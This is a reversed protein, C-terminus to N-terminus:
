ANHTRRKWDKIYEIVDMSRRVFPKECFTHQSEGPKDFEYVVPHDFANAIELISYPYGAGLHIEKPRKTSFILRLIGEVVDEVYTFDRTKLGTGYIRLPENNLVKNKFARIVTSYEGYEAERPGYVNYFYMSHYKIGWHRAYLNLVEESVFKGFTYPNSLPDSFVTSSSQAFFLPCDYKKAWEAVHTTPGINNMIADVPEEFALRVRPTNALHIIGDAHFIDSTSVNCVDEKIYTVYPSDIIHKGIRMDDIVTVACEQTILREVLHSGIFGCGGTIIFHLM